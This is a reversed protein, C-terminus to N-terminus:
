DEDEDEWDERCEDCYGDFDTGFDGCTVCFEDQYGQPILGTFGANPNEEDTEVAEIFKLACSQAYWAKLVWLLETATKGDSSMLFTGEEGYGYSKMLEMQKDDMLVYIKHCGEFAIGKASELTEEVDEWVDEFKKAM